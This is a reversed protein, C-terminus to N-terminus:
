QNKQLLGSLFEFLNKVFNLIKQIFTPAADEKFEYTDESLIETEADFIMFRPLDCNDVTAEEEGYLLDFHLPKTIDTRSHKIDKIFWTKEPFLCTSADVTRDPSILTMDKNKLYNNDFHKEIEATTAGLSANHTDVVTDTLVYWSESLPLAAYGYRAIVAMRGHKDFDVLTQKKGERILTNYATIKDKLPKFQDGACYTSFIREMAADIYEDPTMAWITPWYACLPVLTEEYIVPAIEKIINNLFEGINNHFGSLEIMDLTSNILRNYETEGLLDKMARLLADGGIEPNGSLLEGVYTIGYLAPSDFLIGMVKDDGYISIYSTAIISGLSHCHLVLKEAGSNLLVSDMFDKLERAIAVPDGRWDYDFRLHSNKNISSAEPYPMYAGSTGKATGDPNNFFDEFIFNAIESITHAIKDSDKDVAYLALAPLLKSKVLELIEDTSPLEIETSDDNKDICVDSDLFGTIYVSPYEVSEGGQAFAPIIFAFILSLSLIMSIFKKM